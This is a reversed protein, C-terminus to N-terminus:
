RHMCSVSEGIQRDRVKRQRGAVGGVGWGEVRRSHFSLFDAVCQGRPGHVM